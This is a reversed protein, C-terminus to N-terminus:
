FDGLAKQQKQKALKKYTNWSKRIIGRELFEELHKKLFDKTLPDSPYGSGFDIKIKEKINKIESERKSKALISASACSLHNIDAKHESLIQIQNKIPKNLHKEVQKKWDDTNVSPCDIIVKIKEKTQKALNNIINAAKIAELTNLNTGKALSKYIENAQTTEIHHKFDKRLKQAIEERKKTTLQKSDKAGLSLLLKNDKENILIGALIMPGLVPGRGADDIGILKTM